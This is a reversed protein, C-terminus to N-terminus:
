APTAPVQVTALLDEGHPLFTKMDNPDDPYVVAVFLHTTDGYTVDSLYFRQVQPKAIGWAEGGWQPFSLFLVCADSPCDPDENTAQNSVTVDEVTAPLDGIRGPQPDSVELRPDDQMWHLLGEATLPVGRVRKENRVPYVDEWFFVANEPTSRLILAFEGTSDEHLSWPEELTVVMEGGFFWQTEYPGMPVSRPGVLGPPNCVPVCGEIPDPVPVESATTGDATSTGGSTGTPSSQDQAEGSSGCAAGLLTLTVVCVLTRMSLM